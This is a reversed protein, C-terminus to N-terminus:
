FCLKGPNLVHNPDLIEKIGKLLFTSQADRNYVMDAWEGYPRSFYAGQQILAESTKTFLEKIRGTEKRAEPDYPLSFECHHSLGHHQPQIYIGIDSAPYRLAEAASFVTRIFQPTKDLLSLFFIDQCGGKYGLKWYPERSPQLLIDLLQGSRAGPIAGLLQLGFQQVTERIDAEQAM